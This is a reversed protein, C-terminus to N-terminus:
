AYGYAVGPGFSLLYADIAKLLEAVTKPGVYRQRLLVSQDSEIFLIWEHFDMPREGKYFIPSRGYYALRRLCHCTRVSLSLKELEACFREAWALHRFAEDGKEVKASHM